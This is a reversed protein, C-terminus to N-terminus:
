AARGLPPPVPSQQRMWEDLAPCHCAEAAQDLTGRHAASVPIGDRAYAREREWEMGGPLEAQRQGPFPVMNRAERVFNEVSRRFEEMPLFSDIRIALVFTGQNAAAHPRQDPPPHDFIGPLHAGLVQTVAAFGLLKTFADPLLAFREGLTDATIETLYIGMDPVIGPQDGAPIAISIPPASAAWWISTGPSPMHRVASAALGICGRRACERSYHGAAGFHGHNRATTAGLGLKQAKDLAMETARWAAFYGLGGDGDIVATTPTEHVVRLDPFLNLERNQCERVYRLLQRTGHSHVGRLDSDVLLRALLVAHDDPMGLRELLAQSYARLAEAPVRTFETPPVNLSLPM